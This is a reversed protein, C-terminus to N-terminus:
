SLGQDPEKKGIARRVRQAVTLVRNIRSKLAAKQGKSIIGSFCTRYIRALRLRRRERAFEHRLGLLEIDHGSLTSLVLDEMGPTRYTLYAHAGLRMCRQCMGHQVRLRQIEELPMDLYNGITFKAADFTGCCLQGNGQFDMSVQEDRLSCSSCGAKGSAELAEKFPLALHGVLDHDEATFCVDSGDGDPYAFMKELPLLLAWAPEFDFGLDAAFKRMLPEDKLNHRYRHYNVVIRTTANSRKRAQALQVMHKKVREIDGGRHTLGYVEQTFGSVSIKFSAPNAAMIADADPLINLNSSLHCSIGRDQVVRILEHIGPHLLPECWSFLSIHEVPCESVAKDVIRALLEPDMQGHPLRYGKFNGQPCSPCALNCAGVVDIDFAFTKM